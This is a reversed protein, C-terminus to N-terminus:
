VCPLQLLKTVRKGEGGREGRGALTVPVVEVVVWDYHGKHQPKEDEEEKADAGQGNPAPAACSLYM